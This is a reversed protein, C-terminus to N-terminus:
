YLVIHRLISIYQYNNIFLFVAFVGLILWKYKFRLQNYGTALIALWPLHILPGYLFAEMPNFYLFYIINIIIWLVLIQFWKQRISGSQRLGLLSILIFAIYSFFFMIGGFINFYTGLYLLESTDWPSVYIIGVGYFFFNLLTNLIASLNVFNKFTSSGWTIQYDKIYKIIQLFRFEKNIRGVIEYALIVISLMIVLYLLSKIPFLKKQRIFLLFLPIVALSALHLTVLIGTANIISFIFLFKIDPVKDLYRLTILLFINIFIINLIYTEPFSSYLWIGFFFGYIISFCLALSEKKLIKKLIYFAIILNLVGYFAIPFVIKLNDNNLIIQGLKYLPWTLAPSILNHKVDNWEGRQYSEKLHKIMYTTESNDTYFMNGDHTFINQNPTLSFLYLFLFIFLVIILYVSSYKPKLLCISYIFIIVPIIILIWFYKNIFDAVCMVKSRYIKMKDLPIVYSNRLFIKCLARSGSKIHKILGPSNQFKIQIYHNGPDLRYCPINRFLNNATYIYLEHISWWKRYKDRNIIKVYRADTPTIFYDEIPNKNIGFVDKIYRLFKKRTSTLIELRRSFDTPSLSTDLTIGIIKEIKGLDIMLWEEGERFEKTTARTTIDRDFVALEDFLKNSKSGWEPIPYDLKGTSTYVLNGDLRIECKSNCLGAIQITQPNYLYFFGDWQIHFNKNILWLPLSNRSDFGTLKTIKSSILTNNIYLTERFGEKRSLFYKYLGLSLIFVISLVLITKTKMQAQLM